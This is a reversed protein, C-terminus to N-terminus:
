SEKLFNFSAYYNKGHCHELAVEISPIVGAIPERMANTPRYDVIQCYDDTNPKKVPLAPCRWRSQRNEYVCGVDVQKRNFNELFAERKPSNQHVKCRYPKLQIKLPPVRAPPDNGLEVALRWVSAFHHAIRLDWLRITM